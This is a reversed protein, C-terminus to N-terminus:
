FNMDLQLCTGYQGGGQFTAQARARSRDVLVVGEPLEWATETGEVNSYYTEGSEDKLAEWESGAVPM